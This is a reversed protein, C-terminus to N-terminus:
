SSTTTNWSGNQTTEPTPHAARPATEGTKSDAAAEGWRCRFVCAHPNDHHLKACLVAHIGRRRVFLEAALSMGVVPAAFYIWLGTYDGAFLASALTRAPNLSMGSVPAEFTIFLAVLGGVAFATHRNWRRSQSLHLATSMLAFTMALEAAFAWAAGFRGPVTAVWHVEDRALWKGLLPAVVALGLAGGLCQAAVYRLAVSGPVRGLRWFALTTAPNFHAGSRQGLPSRILVVATTGMCLGAVARQLLPDGLVLHVPSTPIGLLVGCLAAVVMFVGLLAGDIAAARWGGAGNM